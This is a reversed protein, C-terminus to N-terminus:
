EDRYSEQAILKLRTKQEKDLLGYHNMLKLYELYFTQALEVRKSRNDMVRYLVDAEYFPVL